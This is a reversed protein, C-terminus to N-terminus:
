TIVRLLHHAWAQSTSESCIDGNTYTWIIKIRIQDDVVIGVIDSYEDITKYISEDKFTVIDGIRM